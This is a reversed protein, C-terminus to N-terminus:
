LNKNIRHECGMSNWQNSTKSTQTGKKLKDGGSEKTNGGPAVKFQQSLIKKQWVSVQIEFRQSNPEHKSLRLLSEGKM